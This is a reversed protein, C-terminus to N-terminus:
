KRKLAKIMKMFNNKLNNEEAEEANPYEPRATTSGSPEGPAMNSKTNNFANKCLCRCMEEHLQHLHYRLRQPASERWNTCPYRHRWSVARREILAPPKQTELVRKRWDTCNTDTCKYAASAVTSLQTQPSPHYKFIVPDLTPLLPRGALTKGISWSILSHHIHWLCPINGM